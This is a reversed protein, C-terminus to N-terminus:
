CGANITAFCSWGNVEFGGMCLCCTQIIHLALVTMQNTKLHQKMKHRLRAHGLIFLCDAVVTSTSLGLAHQHNPAMKFAHM